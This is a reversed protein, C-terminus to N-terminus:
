GNPGIDRWGENKASPVCLVSPNAVEATAYLGPKVFQNNYVVQVDSPWKPSISYCVLHSQPHTIPTNDLACYPGACGKAPIVSKAVPNCFYRPALVMAIQPNTVFFDDNLTVVRNIAQGSAAYCRFHDLEGQSPIAPIGPNPAGVTLQAAGSPVGLVEAAGTILNQPGFQNVVQVYRPISNGVPKTDYLALHADPHAVPVTPYGTASIVTKKAPNCFMTMTIESVSDFVKDRVDFQDSLM